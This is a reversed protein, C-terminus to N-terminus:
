EDYSLKREYILKYTVQMGDIRTRKTKIKYGCNEELYKMVSNFRYQSRYKELLGCRFAYDMIQQKDEDKYIAYKMEDEHTDAPCAWTSDIMRCFDAKGEGVDIRVVDEISGDFIESISDFWERNSRDALFDEFAKRSKVLYSKGYPNDAKRRRHAVVLNEVNFRCRGVFQKVHMEDSLCCVVNDVKSDSNLNVGERMTSTTILVKLPTDDDIHTPLKGNEIIYDRIEAMRPNYKKNHASCILVSNPIKGMLEEGDKVSACMIMTVGPLVGTNIMRAISEYRTCILHKVKYNIIKEKNVQVARIGTRLANHYAIGPTATLGICIAENHTIRERLWIRVALMGDIFEDSYIAHCEDFVIIKVNMLTRGYEENMCDLISILQGYNMIWIGSDAIGQIDGNWYKVVEVASSKDIRNIGDM